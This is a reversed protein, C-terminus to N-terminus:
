TRFEKRVFLCYLGIFISVSPILCLSFSSLFMFSLTTGALFAHLTHCVCHVRSNLRHKNQFIGERLSFIRTSQAISRVVCLSCEWRLLFRRLMLYSFVPNHFFLRCKIPIHHYTWACQAYKWASVCADVGFESFSIYFYQESIISPSGKMSLDISRNRDTFFPHETSKNTKTESRRKRATSYRSACIM